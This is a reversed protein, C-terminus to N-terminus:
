QMMSVNMIIDTNPRDKVNAGTPMAAILDIIELGEIVEGFVTYQMDLYPYGGVAKYYARNVDPFKYNATEMNDLQADDFKYGQVIYFQCGSSQKNPNIGDPLRAAALAGKKHFHNARIEAPLVECNDNGLSIHPAAGVSNPDGGQAMFFPLVRHFLTGNYTGNKVNKVFNDRHIPTDDYLQIIMDGFTTSVKVKYNKQQASIHLSFLLSSIFLISFKKM